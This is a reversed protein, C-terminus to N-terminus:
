SAEHTSKKLERVLDLDDAASSTKALDREHGAFRM